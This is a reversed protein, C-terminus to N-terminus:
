SPGAPTRLSRPFTYGLCEKQKFGGRADVKFESFGLGPTWQCGVSM